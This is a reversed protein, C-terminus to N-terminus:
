PKLAFVTGCGENCKGTGGDETTGYLKGKVDIPGADPFRGDTCSQQSCFSYLVKQLSTEPDLAFVTGDSSAGGGYTTGYLMGNVDILSTVPNQGDLCDRGVHQSCFSHLVTESGTKVDVMFVTGWNYNAGGSYTTGYLRGNVDLLSSSPYLGDVCNLQGCFSYVVKEAGTNPDLAFVAGCGSEGICNAGGSWTVGYLMGKVDILGGGPFDGDTCNQQGCFSYVVKEAGTRPDLAFVAGCGDSDGCSTNVGGLDTAGYLTGNVDLLSGAPEDGDTCNQQSCFSYVVKEAGTKPDLAFVAGGGAAGGAITPGYLTGKVDILGGDPGEGDPCNQQSCFSHLVKEAGTKPDLAFATGCGVSCDGTGGEETTGYLTGNVDILGATPFEGDTGGFSHVVTERAKTGGAALVPQSSVCGAVCVFLVISKAKM